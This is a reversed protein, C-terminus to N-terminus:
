TYASHIHDEPVMRKCDVVRLVRRDGSQVLNFIKDWRM